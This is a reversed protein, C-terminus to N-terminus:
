VVILDDDDFEDAEDVDIYPRGLPLLVAFPENPDPVTNIVCDGHDAVRCLYRGAPVRYDLFARGRASTTQVEGEQPGAQDEGVLRFFTIDIEEMPDRHFTVRISLHSLPRCILVASLRTPDDIPVRTVFATQRPAEPM